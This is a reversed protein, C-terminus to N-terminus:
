EYKSDEIRRSLEGAEDLGEGKAGEQKPWNVPDKVNTHMMSTKGYALCKLSKISGIHVLTPQWPIEFVADCKPCKARM